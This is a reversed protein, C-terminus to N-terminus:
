SSRRRTTPHAGKQARRHSWPEAWAALPMLRVVVDQGMLTLTYGVGEDLEVLRADRLESLRQNLTSPSLGDCAAQLPRFRLPGGRLEWIVRLSARRGLLEALAAWGRSTPDLAPAPRDRKKKKKRKQKKKQDKKGPAM